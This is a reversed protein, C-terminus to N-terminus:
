NTVRENFVGAVMCRVSGGGLQEITPISLPLLEAYRAIANAQGPLLSQFAQESMLMYPSGTTSRVEMMNGAFARMQAYSIAV